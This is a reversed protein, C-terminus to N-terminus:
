AGLLLTVAEENPCIVPVVEVSRWIWSARLYEKQCFDQKWRPASNEAGEKKCFNKATYSDMCTAKLLFYLWTEFREGHLAAHSKHAALLMTLWSESSHKLGSARGQLM